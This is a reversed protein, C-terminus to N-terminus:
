LLSPLLSEGALGVLVHTYNPGNYYSDYYITITIFGPLVAAFGTLGFRM